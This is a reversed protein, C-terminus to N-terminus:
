EVLANIRVSAVTSSEIIGSAVVCVVIVACPPAAEVVWGPVIRVIVRVLLRFMMMTM